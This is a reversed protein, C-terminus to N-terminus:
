GGGGREVSWAGCEGGCVELAAAVCADVAIDGGPEVPVAGEDFANMDDTLAAAPDAAHRAVSLM